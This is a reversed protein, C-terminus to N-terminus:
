HYLLNSFESDNMLCFHMWRERIFWFEAIIFAQLYKITLVSINKWRKVKGEM